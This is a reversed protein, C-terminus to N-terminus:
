GARWFQRGIIRFDSGNNEDVIKDRWEPNFSHLTLRGDGEIFIQKLMAEGGLYVAYIEGDKPITDSIDMAFVDGDFLYMEMSRGRAYAFKTNSPKVGRKTFFSPEFSLKKIELPEFHFEIDEGDGCSFSIDVVDVWIKNNRDEDSLQATTIANSSTQALVKERIVDKKMSGAGDTLWMVEVNLTQAIKGISASGKRQGSELMAITSQSRLGAKKALEAQSLQALERAYKLREALSNM